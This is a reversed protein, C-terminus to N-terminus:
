PEIVAIGNAFRGVDISDVVTNTATNIVYVKYPDVHNGECTVYLYAGNKALALGHPKLGVPIYAAAKSALNIASVTHSENCTAYLTASDQSLVTMYPEEGQVADLLISDIVQRTKIEVIRIQHNHHLDTSDICSVYALSEDASFRVSFPGYFNSPFAQYNTPVGPSLKTRCAPDGCPSGGNPYIFWCDDSFQSPALVLNGDKSIALGHPARGVPYLDVQTMTQSNFKRVVSASSANPNTTFNYDSTYVFNGDPSIVIDAPNFGARVRSIVSDAGADIKIMHGLAWSNTVYIFKKDPSAVIHHTQVITPLEGPGVVSIEDTKYNTSL